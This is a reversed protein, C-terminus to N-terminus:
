ILVTEEMGILEMGIFKLMSRKVNERVERFALIQQERSGRIKSPDPISFHLHQRFSLDNPLRTNVEDCVTILFDFHKDKFVSYEKSRNGSIDINDEDMVQISIPHLGHDVLGASFFQGKDGAYFNLYGEAMQSRCANGTCLVLVRKM